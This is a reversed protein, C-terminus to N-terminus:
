GNSLSEVFALLRPSARHWEGRINEGAYFRHVASETFLKTAARVHLTDAHGTQLETRRQEVNKARGIKIPGNDGAQIFYCWPACRDCQRQDPVPFDRPNLAHEAHEMVLPGAIAWALKVENASWAIGREGSAARNMKRALDPLHNM